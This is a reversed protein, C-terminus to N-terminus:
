GHYSALKFLSSGTEFFFAGHSPSPLTARKTAGGGRQREGGWPLRDGVVGQPVTALHRDGM